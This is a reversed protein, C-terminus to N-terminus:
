LDVIVKGEILLDLRLDTTQCILVRRLHMEHCLTDEYVSELLEPGM